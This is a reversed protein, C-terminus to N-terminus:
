NGSPPTVSPATRPPNFTSPPTSNSTPVPPCIYPGPTVIAPCMAPLYTPAIWEAAGDTLDSLRERLKAKVQETIDVNESGDWLIPNGPSSYPAAFALDSQVILPYQEKFAAVVFERLLTHNDKTNRSNFHQLLLGLKNQLVQLKNQLDNLEQQDQAAVIKRQVSKFDVGIKRLSELTERDMALVSIRGDGLVAGFNVVAIKVKSPEQANASIAVTSLLLAAIRLTKM